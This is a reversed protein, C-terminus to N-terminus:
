ACTSASTKPEPDAPIMATSPSQRYGCRDLWECFRSEWCLYPSTNKGIRVIGQPGTGNKIALRLTERSPKGYKAALESLRMLRDTGPSPTAVGDTM